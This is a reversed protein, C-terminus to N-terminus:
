SATSTLGAAGNRRADFSEAVIEVDKISIDDPTLANLGRRLRHLDPEQDCFFNVVQGARPCRRRNARFRDRTDARRSVDIGSAGACISDDARETADALWPLEATM